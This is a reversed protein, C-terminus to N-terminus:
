PKTEDLDPLDALHKWAEDAEPGSWGEALASEALIAAEIDAPPVDSLITVLARAPSRLSVPENLKVQGHEDITAEVTRMM